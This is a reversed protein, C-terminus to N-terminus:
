LESLTALHMMIDDTHSFAVRYFLTPEYLNQTPLLDGQKLDNKWTFSVSINESDEIQSHM